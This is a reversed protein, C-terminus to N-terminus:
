DNNELEPPTKPVYTISVDDETRIKACENFFKENAINVKEFPIKDFRQEKKM